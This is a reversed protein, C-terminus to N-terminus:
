FAGRASLVAGGAAPRVTVAAQARASPWFVWTAAFLGAGVGAGIFGWREGTVDRNYTSIDDHLAACGAYADGACAEPDDPLKAQAARVRRAAAPRALGFGIGIGAGAVTVAAEGILLATRIGSSAAHEAPPPPAVPRPPAAVPRSPVAAGPARGSAAATRPRAPPPFFVKLTRHEGVALTVDAHYDGQGPARIVVHHLGPDLRLSTGLASAPLARQDLEAAASTGPPVVIDLKAIRSELRRQALPLLPEVDPAAAGDRILAAARAYDASAEVFSGLQEECHALHYRLGPTEKIAVASKLKVEAASWESHAELEAADAFLERATALEGAHPQRGQSKAAPAVLLLAGLLSSLHTVGPKM